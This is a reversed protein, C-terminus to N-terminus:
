SVYIDNIQDSTTCDEIRKDNRIGRVIPIRLSYAKGNDLGCSHWNKSKTVNLAQVELVASKEPHIYCYPVKRAYTKNAMAESIIVSGPVNTTSFDKIKNYISYIMERNQIGVKTITEYKRNNRTGLLVAAFPLESAKGEGKYIGLVVLDLTLFNKLKIWDKNRKGIQYVSDPNKCVLGEAGMGTVLDFKSKLDDANNFEFQESVNEVNDELTKRREVLNKTIQEHKGLMLVDFFRIQLPYEEVLKSDLEDRVRKKVSNFGELSKGYGVLEGDYIGNPLKRLTGTLDPFVEPRLLNLNRTFLWLGSNKHVQIRYGDYKIEALTKGGHKKIIKGYKKDDTGSESVLMPEIPKGIELKMKNDMKVVAITEQHEV